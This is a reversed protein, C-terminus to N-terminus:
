DKGGTLSLSVTGADTEFHTGIRLGKIPNGYGGRILGPEIYYASRHGQEKEKNIWTYRLSTSQDENVFLSDKSYDRPTGFRFTLVNTPNFSWHKLYALDVFTFSKRGVEKVVSASLRSGQTSFLGDNQSDWGVQVFAGPSSGDLNQIYGAQLFSYDFLRLGIGVLAVSSGALSYNRWTPLFGSLSSFGYVRSHFLGPYVYGLSYQGFGRNGFADFDYRGGLAVTFSDKDGFVGQKTASAKLLPGHDLSRRVEYVRYGGEVEYSWKSEEKGLIVVVVQGPETGKELSTELENFRQALVLRLRQDRLEEEKLAAGKQLGLEKAVDNCDSKFDGECRLGSIVLTSPGQSSLGDESGSATLAVTLSLFLLIGKGLTWRKAVKSAMRMTKKWLEVWFANMSIEKM